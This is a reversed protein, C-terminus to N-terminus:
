DGPIKCELTRADDGTGGTYQSYGNVRRPCLFYGAPGPSRWTYCVPQQATNAVKGLDFAFTYDIQCYSMVCQLTQLYIGDAEVVGVAAQQKCDDFFEAASRYPDLSQSGSDALFSSGNLIYILGKEQLQSKDIARGPPSHNCPCCIAM